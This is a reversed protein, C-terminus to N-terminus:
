AGKGKTLDGPGPPCRSSRPTQHPIPVHPVHPTSAKKPAQKASQMSTWSVGRATLPTGNIAGELFPRLFNVEVPSHMAPLTAEFGKKWEM